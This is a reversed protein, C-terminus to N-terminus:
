RHAAPWQRSQGGEQLIKGDQFELVKRTIELRISQGTGGFMVNPIDFYLINMIEPQSFVIETEGGFGFQQDSVIATWQFPVVFGYPEGAAGL